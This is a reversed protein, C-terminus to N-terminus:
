STDVELAASRIGRARSYLGAGVLIPLVLVKADLALAKAIELLQRDATAGADRLAPATATGIGSSAGTAIVTKDALGWDLSSGPM